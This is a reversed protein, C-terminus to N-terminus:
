ESEMAELRAQKGAISHRLVACYDVIERLLAQEEAIEQRLEAACPSCAAQLRIIDSETTGMYQADREYDTGRRPNRAFRRPEAKNPFPFSFDMNSDPKM